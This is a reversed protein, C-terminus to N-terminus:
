ISPHGAAPTRQLVEMLELVLAATEAPREFPYLHTGEFWVFQERALAKAAALGGQRSEMSQTGAIFAVPCQLPHRQLVRDLHHPLTNYIRTEIDRRFRLVTKGDHDEFGADVYDALALPDWRAFVHKAAFHQLVAARSPWEHRRQKSVKGPSMRPMLGTAKMVQVSHARWGSIVPSDLMVLGQVLDPRKCAAMLSLLGGLSHGVLMVRAGIAQAQQEAEDILQDRLHPWNSSVPFRPDHGFRTSRM